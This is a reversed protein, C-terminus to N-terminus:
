FRMTELLDFALPWCVRLCNLTSILCPFTLWAIRRSEFLSVDDPTRSRFSLVMFSICSFCGSPLSASELARSLPGISWDTCETTKSSISALEIRSAECLVLPAAPGDPRSAYAQLFSSHLLLIYPVNLSSRHWSNAIIVRWSHVSSHLLMSANIAHRRIGSSLFGPKRGKPIPSTTRLIM